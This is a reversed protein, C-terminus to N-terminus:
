KPCYSKIVAYVKTMGLEGARSLDNCGTGKDTFLLTLLGRNYYAELFRPNLRVCETLDKLARDYNAQLAQAFARNYWAYVFGPELSVAKDFDDMMKGYLDQLAKEQNLAADNFGISGETPITASLQKAQLLRANARSFWIRFDNPSLLLAQHFSVFAEQFSALQVQLNAKRLYLDTNRPDVKILSDLRWIKEELVASSGRWDKQLKLHYEGRNGEKNKTEYAYPTPVNPDEEIIFIPRFEIDAFRYQGKTEETANYAFDNSLETFTKLPSAEYLGVNEALVQGEAKLQMAKRYDVEAKKVRKLQQYVQSRAYFADAYKPYITIASSYDALAKQLKGDRFHIGGRNFYATINKPNMELVHSFDAIASQHDNLNDWAIGRNFYVVSNKDSLRISTNYDEIAKPYKKNQLYWNGRHFYGLV